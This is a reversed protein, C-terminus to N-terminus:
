EFSKMCVLIKEYIDKLSRDDLPGSNHLSLKTFIEHERQSDLVPLGAKNKLEGIVAVIKARNNLEQVIEGDIKDIKQRLKEITQEEALM